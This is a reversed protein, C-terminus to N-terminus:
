PNLDGSLPSLRRAAMLQSDRIAQNVALLILGELRSKDGSDLMDQGIEVSLCEQTGSMSIKVRGRGASAEVSSQALESQAKRLEQDMRERLTGEDEESKV